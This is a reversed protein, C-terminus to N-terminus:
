RASLSREVIPRVEQEWARTSRFWDGEVGHYILGNGRPLFVFGGSVEPVFAYEIRYMGQDSGSLDVSFEVDFDIADEPIASEIVSSFDIFTRSLDVKGNIRSNPGSWISFQQTIERDDIIIASPLADSTVVIKSIEGKAFATIALLLVSVVAILKQILSSM